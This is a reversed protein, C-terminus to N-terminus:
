FRKVNGQWDVADIIFMVDWTSSLVPWESLQTILLSCCETQLLREYPLALLHSRNKSPRIHISVNLGYIVTNPYVSWNSYIRDSNVRFISESFSINYIEVFYQCLIFVMRKTGAQLSKHRSNISRGYTTNPNMTIIKTRNSIKTSSGDGLSVSMIRMIEKKICDFHINNTM